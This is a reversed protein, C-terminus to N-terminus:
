EYIERRLVEKTQNIKRVRKLKDELTPHLKIWYKLAPKETLDDIWYKELTGKNKEIVRKSAVNDQLCSVCVEEMGLKQCEILLLNLILTGYGKNRKNERVGYSINGENMNDKHYDLFGSNEISCFGIICNQCEEDVLYYLEEFSDIIREYYADESDVITSITYSNIESKNKFSDYYELVYNFPIDLAHVLKLM